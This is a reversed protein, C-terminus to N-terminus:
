VGERRENLDIGGGGVEDHTLEKVEFCRIRLFRHLHIDIPLHIQLSHVSPHFSPLFSSLEGVRSENTTPKTNHSTIQLRPPFKVSTIATNSVMVTLGKGRDNIKERRKKSEFTETLKLVRAPETLASRREGKKRERERSRSCKLNM